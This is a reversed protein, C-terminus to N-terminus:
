DKKLLNKTLMDGCMRIYVGEKEVNERLLPNILEGYKWDSQNFYFCSIAVGYDVNIEASIDSLKYRDSPTKAKNTLILIDIDSYPDADGRARSGFLVMKKVDFTDKIKHYLTEIAEREIESIQIPM